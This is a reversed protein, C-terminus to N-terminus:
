PRGKGMGGGKGGWDTEGDSLIYPTVDPERQTELFHGKFVNM